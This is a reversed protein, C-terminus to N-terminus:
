QKFSKILLQKSTITATTGGTAGSCLIVNTSNDLNNVTFIGSAKATNTITLSSDIYYVTTEAFITTATIRSITIETKHYICNLVGTGINSITTGGMSILILRNFGSQPVSSANSDITIIDGNTSLTGAILSYSMMTTLNNNHITVPTLNNYLIQSKSIGAAGAPGILLTGSGWSGATKPGYLINTSTNLYFDGNVGQTTPVVTGNLITNGNTGNTGPAGNSAAAPLLSSNNSNCSM